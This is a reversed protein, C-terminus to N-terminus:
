QPGHLVDIVLLVALAVLAAGTMRHALIPLRSWKQIIAERQSYSIGLLIFAKTALASGVVIWVWRDGHGQTGVILVLGMLMLAQALLFRQSPKLFTGQIWTKWILPIIAMVLGSGMMVLSVVSLSVVAIM